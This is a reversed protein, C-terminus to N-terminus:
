ILGDIQNSIFIMPKLHVIFIALKADKSEIKHLKSEKLQVGKSEIFTTWVSKM